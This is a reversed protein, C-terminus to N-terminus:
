YSGTKIATHPKVNNNQFLVSKSSLGASKKHIARQVKNSLLSSYYEANVTEGRKLFDASSVRTTLLVSTM